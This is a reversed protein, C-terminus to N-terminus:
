GRPALTFRLEFFDLMNPMPKAPDLSPQLLKVRRDRLVTALMAKGVSLALDAGPCGQPGHSFHNFSWDDAAAGSLWEEPAFRDAFEFAERDRHNFTNVILIQSGAPVSAGDWDVTRVTERSLM